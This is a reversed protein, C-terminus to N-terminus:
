CLSERRMGASTQCSKLEKRAAGASGTSHSSPTIGLLAVRKNQPLVSSEPQHPTGSCSDCALVGCRQLWVGTIMFFTGLDGVMGVLGSRVQPPGVLWIWTPLGMGRERLQGTKSHHEPSPVTHCVGLVIHLVSQGGWATCPKLIEMPM